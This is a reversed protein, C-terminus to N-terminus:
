SRRYYEPSAILLATEQDESGGAQLAVLGNTLETALADRHLYRPYLGKLHLVEAEGTTLVTLAVQQRSQGNGLMGIYQALESANAERNLTGAFLGTIFGSDGGAAHDQAYIASGYLIAELHTLANGEQVIAVTSGLVHTLIGGTNVDNNQLVSLLPMLGAAHPAQALVTQYAEQMQLARAASSNQIQQVLALRSLGDDLAAADTALTGSDVAVHELDLFARIVFRQNLTGTFGAVNTLAVQATGAGSVLSGGVDHGADNDRISVTIQFTGDGFYTHGGSVQFSGSSTRSVIGTSSAGDGWSITATFSAAASATDADTFSAVV